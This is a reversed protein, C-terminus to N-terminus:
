QRLRYGLAFRLYARGYRLATKASPLHVTGYMRLAVEGPSHVKLKRLSSTVLRDCKVTVPSGSEPYNEFQRLAAGPWGRGGLRFTGTTSDEADLGNIVSHPAM